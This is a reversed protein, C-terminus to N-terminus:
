DWHNMERVIELLFAANIVVGVFAVIAAAPLLRRNLRLAVTPILGVALIFTAPVVAVWEMGDGMPNAHQYIYVYLYVYILVQAAIGVHVALRLRKARREESGNAQEIGSM